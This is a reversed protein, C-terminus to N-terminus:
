THKTESRTACITVYEATWGHRAAFFQVKQSYKPFVVNINATVQLLWGM